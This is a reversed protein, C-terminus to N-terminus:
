VQVKSRFSSNRRKPQWTTGHSPLGPIIRGRTTQLLNPISVITTNSESQSLSSLPSDRSFCRNSLLEIRRSHPQSDGFGNGSVVKQPFATTAQCESMALSTLASIPSCSHSSILTSHALVNPDTFSSPFFGRNIESTREVAHSRWSRDGLRSLSQLSIMEGPYHDMRRAHSNDDKRLSVVFLVNSYMGTLQIQHPSPCAVTSGPVPPKTLSLFGFAGVNM